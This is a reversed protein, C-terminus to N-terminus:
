TGLEALVSGSPLGFMFLELVRLLIGLLEQRCLIVLHFTKNCPSIWMWSEAVAYMCPCVLYKGKVMGSDNNLM